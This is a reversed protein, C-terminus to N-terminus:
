LKRANGFCAVTWGGTAGSATRMRIHGLPGLLPETGKSATGDAIMARQERTRKPRTRKMGALYVHQSRTRLRARDAKTPLHSSTFVTVAAPIEPELLESWIRDDDGNRSGHHAVKYIHGRRGRRGPSGIATAWADAPATELDGGLLIRHEGVEIWIVMSLYNRRMAAPEQDRRAENVLKTLTKAHVLSSPSLSWVRLDAEEWLVTGRVGWVPGCRRRTLEAFVAAFQDVSRKREEPERPSGWFRIAEILTPDHLTSACAFRAARACTLLEALGGIHDSDWHSVAVLRLAHEPAVGLRRLYAVAVPTEDEDVCSDVSLWRENGLHVVIAEGKGRGFVSVELEDAAPPADADAPSM